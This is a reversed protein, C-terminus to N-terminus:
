RYPPSASPASSVARAALEALQPRGATVGAWVVRARTAAPFAGLGAIQVDFGPAGSLTERLGQILPALLAQDVGGLFKLTLHLNGPAVWAVQPAARGLTQIQNALAARTADDVLVAVFSRVRAPHRDQAAGSFSQHEVVTARDGV